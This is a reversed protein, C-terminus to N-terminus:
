ALSSFGKGSPPPKLEARDFDGEFRENKSTWSCRVKEGMDSIVAMRQHPDSKHVVTDGVKIEENM